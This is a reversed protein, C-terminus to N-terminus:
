LLPVQYIVAPYTCYSYDQSLDFMHLKEMLPVSIVPLPRSHVEQPSPFTVYRPQTM